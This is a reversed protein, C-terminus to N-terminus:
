SMDEGERIHKDSEIARETLARALAVAAEPHETCEIMLEAHLAAEERAKEALLAYLRIEGELSERLQAERQALEVAEQKISAIQQELAVNSQQAQEFEAALKERTLESEACRNVAHDLERSRAICQDIAKLAAGISDV